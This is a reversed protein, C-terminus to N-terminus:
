GMLSNDLTRSHFQKGSRCGLPYRIRRKRRQRLQPWLNLVVCLESFTSLSPRMSVLVLTTTAGHLPRGEAIRVSWSTMLM